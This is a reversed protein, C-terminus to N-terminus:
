HALERAQNAAYRREEEALIQCLVDPNVRLNRKAKVCAVLRPGDYSITALVTNTFTNGSKRHEVKGVVIDISEFDTYPKNPYYVCDPNFKIDYAPRLDQEGPLVARAKSEANLHPSLRTALSVPCQGLNYHQESSHFVPVYINRDYIHVTMTPQPM